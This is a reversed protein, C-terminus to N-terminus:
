PANCPRFCRRCNFKKNSTCLIRILVWFVRDWFVYLISGLLPLFNLPFSIVNATAPEHNSGKFLHLLAVSDFIKGWCFNFNDCMYALAILSASMASIERKLFPMFVTV